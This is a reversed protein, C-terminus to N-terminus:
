AFPRIYHYFTEAWRSRELVLAVAIGVVLGLLLLLGMVLPRNPSSTLNNITATTVNEGADQLLVEPAENLQKRLLADANALRAKAQLVRPHKDGYKDLERTLASEAGSRQQSLVQMRSSRLFETVFANTVLVALAPDNGTYSVKVMYTRLQDTTVSLRSLLIMAARDIAEREGTLESKDTSSGVPMVTLRHSEAVETRLRELGLQQVVQRALDESELLRSQTEIMRTLDLGVYSGAAKDEDKAVATSVVFGGRIFATPTYSTPIVVIAAVGVALVSAVIAGVLLKRRWVSTLVSRLVDGLGLELPARGIGVADLNSSM